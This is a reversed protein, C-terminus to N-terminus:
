LLQEELYKSMAREEGIQSVMFPNPRSLFELRRRIGTGRSAGGMKGSFYPLLFKFFLFIFNWTRCLFIGGLATVQMGMYMPHHVLDYPGSTILHHDESLRAGLSSSVNYYRGMTVWSWLYLALGLFYLFSGLSLSLVRTFFSLPIPIQNWLVYCVMFYPIGILFYIPIRLILSAHGSERGKIQRRAGWMGFLAACLM